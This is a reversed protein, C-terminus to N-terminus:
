QTAQELTFENYYHEGGHQPFAKDMQPKTMTVPLRRIDPMNARYWAIQSLFKEKRESM